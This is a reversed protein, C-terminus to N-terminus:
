PTGGFASNVLCLAVCGKTKATGGVANSAQKSAERVFRPPTYSLTLMVVGASKAKKRRSRGGRVLEVEVVVESQLSTDGM